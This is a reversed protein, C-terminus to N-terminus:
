KETLHHFVKCWPEDTDIVLAGDIACVMNHPMNSIARAKQIYETAIASLRTRVM